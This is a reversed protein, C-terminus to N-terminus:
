EDHDNPGNMEMNADQSGYTPANPPPMGNMNIYYTKNITQHVTPKNSQSNDRVKSNPMGKNYIGSTTKQDGNEIGEMRKFYDSSDVSALGSNMPNQRQGM